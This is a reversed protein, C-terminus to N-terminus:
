VGRHVGPPRWAGRRARRPPARPGARGAAFSALSAGGTTRVSGRRGTSRRPARVAMIFHTCLNIVSRYSSASISLHLWGVNSHRSRRFLKQGNISRAVLLPVYKTHKRSCEILVDRHSRRREGLRRTASTRRPRRRSRTWPSTPSRGASGRCTSARSCTRPRTSIFRDSCVITSPRM